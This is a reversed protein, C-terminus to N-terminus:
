KNKQKLFLGDVLYTRFQPFPSPDDLINVPAYLSLPTSFNTM